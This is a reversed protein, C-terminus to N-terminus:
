RGRGRRRGRRAAPYHEFACRGVEDGGAGGEGALVKGGVDGGPRPGRSCSLGTRATQEGPVYRSDANLQTGPSPRQLPTPRTQDGDGAATELGPALGLGTM